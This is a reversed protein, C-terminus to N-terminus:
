IKFCNLNCQCTHYHRTERLSNFILRQKDVRINYYKTLNFTCLFVYGAILPLIILDLRPM